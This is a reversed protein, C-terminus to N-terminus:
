LLPKGTAYLADYYACNYTFIQKAYDVRSEAYMKFSNALETIPIESFGSQFEALQALFISRGIAAKKELHQRASQQEVLANHSKFIDLQLAQRALAAQQEAKRMEITEREVRADMKWFDLKQRLGLAIGLFSFNAEDKLFPNTVNLRGPAIARKYKGGLFIDPFFDLKALSLSKEKASIGLKIEKFEPRLQEAEAQLSQINDALSGLVEQNKPAVAIGDTYKQGLLIALAAEGTKRTIVVKDLEKLAEEAYFDLRLMDNPDATSADDDEEAHQERLKEKASALQGLVEKALDELDNALQLAFFIKAARTQEERTKREKEAQKLAVNTEALDMGTSMKGFTFLPQLADVDVRFLPGIHEYGNGSTMKHTIPNEATGEVNPVPAGVATATAEPLIFSSRLEKAKALAIAVDMDSLTAAPSRTSVLELTERLTVTKAWIPSLGCLLPVTIAITHATHIGRFLGSM